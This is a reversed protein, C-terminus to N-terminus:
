KLGWAAKVNSTTLTEVREEIDDPLNCFFDIGTLQELQRVNVVFDGLPTSKDINGSHEIWFAMAKYGQTNRALLAMFFYKPVPIKNNGSGLYKLINDSSDITGGKCVYLTDAISSWKRVQDEMTAWIGANFANTQPMMNTLFFTQRNSEYSALRDANACIHGHDYGSNWYPDRTFQYDEALFEDNPYASNSTIQDGAREGSYRKTNGKAIEDYMQYCCWRQAMLAPDWEVSYNVDTIGKQENMLATHVVVINRGGKLRPFELRAVAKNTSADNKNTNTTNQSSTGTGLNYDNEDKSCATVVTLALLIILTKLPKM